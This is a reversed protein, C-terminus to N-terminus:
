ELIIRQEYSVKLSGYKKSQYTCSQIFIDRLLYTTNIKPINKLLEFHDGGNAIYDSTYIIVPNNKNILQNQVFLHYQNNKIKIIGNGIPENRSVLLRCLSDLTSSDHIMLKVMENDFPMLEYLHGISIPGKPLLTRLGGSNLLIISNYKDFHSLTDSPPTLNEFFTICADTCWNGLLSIPAGKQLPTDNYGVATAM